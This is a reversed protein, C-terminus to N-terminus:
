PHARTFVGGAAETYITPLGLRDFIKKYAKAVTEYYEDLEEKSKTFSYLDKMLFERGRILGSRPRPEDRFKTQIQYLYTPLDKYSSVRERALAIMAEEHTFGLGIEKESSDKLQYMVGKLKEWRGTEEWLEHPQLVSMYVEQGGVSNMGDRVVRKIKEIVRVGLPLIEYVGAMRKNIFGAKALFKANKSTEESPFSRVTKGFLKSYRIQSDQM